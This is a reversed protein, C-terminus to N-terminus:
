TAAETKQLSCLRQQPFVQVLRAHRSNLREQQQGVRETRLPDRPIPRHQVELNTLAKFPVPVLASM